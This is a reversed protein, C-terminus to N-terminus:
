TTRTNRQHRRDRHLGMFFGSQVMPRSAPDTPHTCTTPRYPANLYRDCVVQKTNQRPTVTPFILPRKATTWRKRRTANKRNDRRHGAQTGHKDALQGSYIKRRKKFNSKSTRRTATAFCLFVSVVPADARRAFPRRRRRAATTAARAAESGEWWFGVQKGFYRKRRGKYSVRVCAPCTCSLSPVHV